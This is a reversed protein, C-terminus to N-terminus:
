WFWESNRGDRMCGGGQGRRRCGKGAAERSMEIGLRLGEDEMVAGMEKLGYVLDEMNKIEKKYKGKVGEGRM